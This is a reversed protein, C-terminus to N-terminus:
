NWLCLASQEEHGVGNPSWCCCCCCFRTMDYFLYALVRLPRPPDCVGYSERAIWMKIQVDSLCQNKKAIMNLNCGFISYVICMVCDLKLRARFRRVIEPWWNFNAKDVRWRSCSSLTWTSTVSSSRSSLWLTDRQCQEAVLVSLSRPWFQITILSSLLLCGDKTFKGNWFARSM